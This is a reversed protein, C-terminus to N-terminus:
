NTDWWLKSFIVDGNSLRDAAEKRMDGNLTQEQQPYKMRYPLDTVEEVLPTFSKDIWTGTSPTLLSFDSFPPILTKPFGTRRYEVWSNDGQMYLAIYKQTLVNEESAAPVAAIYADIDAQDVGWKAMSASIGAEYLTQDWGLGESMIFALEAYELLTEAFAANNIIADGPLSELTFTAADASSESIFMGVYNGASNAQAYIPLRPDVLGPFPNVNAGPVLTTHDHGVLNDGQLLTVFSHSVAFDSRNGVNWASYM